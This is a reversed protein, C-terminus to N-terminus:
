VPRQDVAEITQKLFEDFKDARIPMELSYFPNKLAFDSYLEYIKRLFLDAREDSMKIDTQCMFKTGTISQFCFFKFSDAEVVSIGSSHPVPSLQCAFAFVTHFTSAMIIKDNSTLKQIGFRLNVPYNEKNQLLELVNEGTEEVRSGVVEHQNYNLLIHGIKIGDSEGFEVSVKNDIMGLKFPLPYSFVQEIPQNSYNPTQNDYSYILGGSKSVIFIREIGM